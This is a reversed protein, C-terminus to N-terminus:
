VCLKLLQSILAQFFIWAWVPSSGMDEAIGTCHEVSQVILGDPLQDSRSNTIYGYVTFSAFSYLSLDYIQVAFFSIIKHNIMATVCVVQATTFNFGSFFIWAWVPNSGMVEAISTCHEVSQAILWRPAPWKTFKYYVWLIQIICIFIHFIM